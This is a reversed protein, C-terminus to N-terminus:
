EVGFGPPVSIMGSFYLGRPGGGDALPSFPSSEITNPDTILRTSHGEIVQGFAGPFVHYGGHATGVFFPIRKFFEPTDEGFDVLASFNDVPSMYYTQKTKVTSYRYAHYGWFHDKNTPDKAKEAADWRANLRTAPNWYYTKWGLARLGNQLITGDQGSEATTAKLQSWASGQGTALFAKGLCKLTLGVCSTPAMQDVLKDNKGLDRLYARKDAQSLKAFSSRDGYFASIGYESFFKRHRALDGRLCESAIRMLSDIKQAHLAREEASFNWTEAHAIAASLNLGFIVIIMSIRKM